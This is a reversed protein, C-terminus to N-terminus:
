GPRTVIYVNRAAVDGRRRTSIRNTKVVIRRGGRMLGPRSTATRSVKIATRRTMPQRSLGRRVYTEGIKGRGRNERQVVRVGLGKRRTLAKVHGPRGRGGHAKWRQGSPRGRGGGGGSAFRGHSDRYYYRAM